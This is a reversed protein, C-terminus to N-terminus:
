HRKRYVDVMGFPGIFPVNVAVTVDIEDNAM